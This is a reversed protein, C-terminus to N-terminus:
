ISSSFAISLSCEPHGDSASYFLASTGDHALKNPDSGHYLLLDVAKINGAASAFFLATKGAKNLLKVDAKKELLYQVIETGNEIECARFLPSNGNNDSYDIRASKILLFKVCEIKNASVAHHLSSCGSNDAADINASWKLLLKAVHLLNPDVCVYHLATYGSNNKIEADAHHKLLLLVMDEDGAISAYILATNGKKDKENINLQNRHKKIIYMIYKVNGPDKSVTRLQQEPTAAPPSLGSDVKSTSSLVRQHMEEFNSNNYTSMKKEKKFYTNIINVQKRLVHGALFMDKNQIGKQRLEVKLALSPKQELEKKKGSEKQVHTAARGYFRLPDIAGRKLFPM